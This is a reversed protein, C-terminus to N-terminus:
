EKMVKEATNNEGFRAHVSIKINELIKNKEKNNEIFKQVKDSGVIMTYTQEVDFGQKKIELITKTLSQGFVKNWDYRKIKSREIHKDIEGWVKDTRKEPHHIVQLTDLYKLESQNIKNILESFMKHLETASYSEGKEKSFKQRLGLLISLATKEKEGIEIM